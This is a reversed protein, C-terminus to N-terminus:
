EPKDMAGQEPYRYSNVPGVRFNSGSSTLMERTGEMQKEERQDLHDFM